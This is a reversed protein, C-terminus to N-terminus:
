PQFNWVLLQFQFRIAFGITLNKLLFILVFVEQVEVLEHFKNVGSLLGLFQIRHGTFIEGPIHFVGAPSPHKFFDSLGTWRTILVMVLITFLNGGIAAALGLIPGLSALTVMFPLGLLFFDIVIPLKDITVAAM